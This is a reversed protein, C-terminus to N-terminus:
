RAMIKNLSKDMTQGCHLNEKYQLGHNQQYNKFLLKTSTANITVTYMVNKEANIIM